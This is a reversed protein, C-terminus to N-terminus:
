QAEVMHADAELHRGMGAADRVGDVQYRRGDDPDFRIRDAERLDTPLLYIVHDSVVPGAQSLQALEQANRPQVLGRVTALTAWTQAPMGREDEAGAIAREIVLAHRLLHPSPSM